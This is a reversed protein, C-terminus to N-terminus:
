ENCISACALGLVQLRRLPLSTLFAFVIDWLSVQCAPLRMSYLPNAGLAEMVYMALCLFSRVCLFFLFLLSAKSREFFPGRRAVIKLPRKM